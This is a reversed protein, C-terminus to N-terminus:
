PNTPLEIRVRLPASPVRALAVLLPDSWLGTQAGSLQRVWLRYDGSPLGRVLTRLETQTARDRTLAVITNLPAGTVRLDTDRGTIAVEAGTVVLPDGITDFEVLDWVLAHRTPDLDTTAGLISFLLLTRLM